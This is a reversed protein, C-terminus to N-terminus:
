GDRPHEPVGVGHHGQAVSMDAVAVQLGGGLADSLGDLGCHLGALRRCCCRGSPVGRPGPNRRERGRFCRARSAPRPRPTVTGVGSRYQKSTAINLSIDTGAPRDRQEQLSASRVPSYYRRYHRAQAKTAGPFASLVLKKCLQLPNHWARVVDNRRASHHPSALPRVMGVALNPRGVESVGRTSRSIRRNSARCHFAM